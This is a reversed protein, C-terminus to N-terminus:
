ECLGYKSMCQGSNVEEQVFPLSFQRGGRATKAWRVVDDVFNIEMGPVCPAFFTRGVRKEWQRVKDIMAPFRTAWLLIDEKGSNICPACGVRHFGMMYLPNFKEGADKLYAFVQEKNWDVIPYYVMCQFYHDYKHEPCSARAQSEDRRVGAYRSFTVGKATLNEECWRAQPALKLHETCFQAKRSPFWGKIYSLIDFTMEDEDSFERRRDRCAGEKTGRTGLDKVLAKVTIVPFVARSYEAIFEETAPHENGGANSNLLIVDEPPFMRRVWLATAQSDAGGSFGVVHKHRASNM